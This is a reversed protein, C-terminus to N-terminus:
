GRVHKYALSDKRTTFTHTLNSFVAMVVHLILEELLPPLVQGRAVCRAVFCGFADHFGLSAGLNRESQEDSASTVEALAHLVSNGLLVTAETRLLGPRHPGARRGSMWTLANQLLLAGESMAAWEELVKAPQRLLCELELLRARWSALQLWRPTVDCVDSAIRLCMMRTARDQLAGELPMCAMPFCVFSDSWPDQLYNLWQELLLAPPPIVCVICQQLVSPSALIQDVLRVTEAATQLNATDGDGQLINDVIELFERPLTAWLLRLHSGMQTADLPLVAGSADIQSAFRAVVEPATYSSVAKCVSEGKGEVNHVAGGSLAEPFRMSVLRPLRGAAFGHQQEPTGDRALDIDCTALAGWGRAVATPGGVLLLYFAFAANWLDTAAASANAADARPSPFEARLPRQGKAVASRGCLVDEETETVEASAWDGDHNSMRAACRFGSLVLQTRELLASVIMAENRVADSGNTATLQVIGASPALAELLPKVCDCGQATVDAGRCVDQPGAATLRVLLNAPTLNGHAIFRSHLHALGALVDRFWHMVCLPTVFKGYTALFDCWAGGSVNELLVARVPHRSAVGPDGCEVLGAEHMTAAAAISTENGGAYNCCCVKEDATVVGLLTVVNPHAELVRRDRVGDCGDRPSTATRLHLLAAVEGAVTPEEAPCYPSWRQTPAPSGPASPIVTAPSPLLKVVCGRGAIDTSEALFVRRPPLAPLSLPPRRSPTTSTFPHQQVADQDWPLVRFQPGALQQLLCCVAGQHHRQVEWLAIDCKQERADSRIDGYTSADDNADTTLPQASASVTNELVDLATIVLPWEFPPVLLKPLGTALTERLLHQRAHAYVPM